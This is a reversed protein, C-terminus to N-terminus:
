CDRRITLGAAMLRSHVLGIIAGRSARDSCRAPSRSATGPSTRAWLAAAWHGVLPQAV